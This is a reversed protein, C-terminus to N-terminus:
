CPLRYVCTILRVHWTFPSSWRVSVKHSVKTAEELRDRENEEEQRKRREEEAMRRQLKRRHAEDPSVFEDTIRDYELSPCRCGFDLYCM